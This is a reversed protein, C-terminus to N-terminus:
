PLVPAHLMPCLFAIVREAPFQICLLLFGIPLKM